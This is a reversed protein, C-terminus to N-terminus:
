NSLTKVTNEEIKGISEFEKKADEVSINHKVAYAEADAQTKKVADDGRLKILEAKQEKEEPKLDEDKAKLIREQEAKIEDATLTKGDDDNEEKKTEKKTEKTEKDAEAAQEDAIREIEKDEESKTKADGENLAELGISDLEDQTPAREKLAELDVTATKEAM